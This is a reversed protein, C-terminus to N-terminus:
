LWRWLWGGFSGRSYGNSKAGWVNSRRQVDVIHLRDQRSPSKWQSSCLETLMDAQEGLIVPLALIHLEYPPIIEPPKANGQNTGCIFLSNLRDPVYSNCLWAEYFAAACLQINQGGIDQLLLKAVNLSPFMFTARIQSLQLM